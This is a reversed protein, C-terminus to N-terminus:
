TGSETRSEAIDKRHGHWLLALWLVTFGAAAFVSGLEDQLLGSVAFALYVGTLTGLAQKRTLRDLGWLLGTFGSATILVADVLDTWNM